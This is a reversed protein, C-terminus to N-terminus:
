GIDAMSGPVDGAQGTFNAQHTLDQLVLAQCGIIGLTAQAKSGADRM